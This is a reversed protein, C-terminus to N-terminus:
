HRKWVSGPYDGASVGNVFGHLLGRLNQSKSCLVPSVRVTRVTELWSAGDILQTFVRLKKFICLVSYDGKDFKGSAGVRRFLPLIKGPLFWSIFLNERM